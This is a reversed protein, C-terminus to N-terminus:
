LVPLTPDLGFQTRGAEEYWLPQLMVHQTAVLVDRLRRQLPHEDYIASSGALQFMRLTVERATEAALTMASRVRGREVLSAPEGADATATVAALAQRFAARAARLEIDARAVAAQVEPHGAIPEAGRISVKTAALAMLDAIAGRALGLCVAAGGAAANTFIPVRYLTRDIRSPAFPAPALSGDVHVRDVLVENSGTGRLGLVYWKDVIAVQSRPVFFARIDPMSPAVFRPGDGELVMGFLILWDQHDCGSVLDWRGSLRFRDGEPVAMGGTRASNGM